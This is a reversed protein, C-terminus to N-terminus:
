SRRWVRVYDIDVNGHSASTPRLSTGMDSEVHIAAHMPTSPVPPPTGQVTLTHGDLRMTIGSPLWDLEATHWGEPAPQWKLLEIDFPGFGAGAHVFGHWPNGLNAEPFDIEGHIKDLPWLLTVFHYVPIDDARFRIVYRGYTFDPVLPHLNVSYCRGGSPAPIHVHLRGNSESVTRETSYRCHGSSDPQGDPQAGMRLTPAGTCGNHNCGTVTGRRITTGFENDYVKVYQPSANATSTAPVTAGWSAAIAAAALTNRIKM